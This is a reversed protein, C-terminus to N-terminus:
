FFVFWAIIYLATPLSLYIINNLLTIRLIVTAFVLFIGFFFFIIHLHFIFERFYREIESDLGNALLLIYVLAGLLVVASIAPLIM